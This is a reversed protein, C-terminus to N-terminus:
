FKNWFFENPTKISKNEASYAFPVTDANLHETCYLVSQMCTSLTVTSYQVSCEAHQLRSYTEVTCDEKWIITSYQVTIQFSYLSTFKFSHLSCCKHAM